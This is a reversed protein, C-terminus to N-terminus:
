RAAWVWDGCVGGRTPRSEYGSLGVEGASLDKGFRGRGVM